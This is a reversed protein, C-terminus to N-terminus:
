RGGEKARLESVYPHFQEWRRIIEDLTRPTYRIWPMMAGVNYIQGLNAGPSPNAAAARRLDETWKELWDNEGTAHVHGCLMFTSPDNSHKYCMMPFHSLIVKRGNDDVEKYEKIDAFLKRLEPATPNLDHNGRILFKNGNLRRLIRIWANTKGWCFDGCIYVNDGAKVVANWNLVIVDEMEEVCSFPRHDFLLVNSHDLHLDAIYFNM